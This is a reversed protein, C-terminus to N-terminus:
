RVEKLVKVLLPLDVIGSNLDVPSELNLPKFGAVVPLLNFTAPFPKNNIISKFNGIVDCTDIRSM